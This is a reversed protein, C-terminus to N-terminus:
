TPTEALFRLYRFFIGGRPVCPNKITDSGFQFLGTGFYQQWFNDRPNYYFLSCKYCEQGNLLAFPRAPAPSSSRVVVYEGSELGPAKM